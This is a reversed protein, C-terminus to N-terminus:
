KMQDYQYIHLGTLPSLAANMMSRAVKEGSVPRYKRLPGLMTWTILPMVVQAIKEGTRKENRDGMLLSPRFIHTSEFPLSSIDEEVSGKLQLYFNASNPNAGVASVLLYKRFGNKLALQAATVPIDYDVKRYASKDNKVKKQTTGVCCFISDGRGLGDNFSEADDFKVQKVELRPHQLSVPKRVLIRVASFLDNQLLQQVLLGGVMGTAGLVVATQTQM